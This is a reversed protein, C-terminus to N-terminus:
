LRNFCASENGGARRGVFAFGKGLELLFRTINRVLANELEREDYGKQMTLFEFNYPDNLIEQALGSQPAPLVSTFNTVAAGQRAYFDSALNDELMRRSWGEDSVCNMYFLAEKVTKCRRVIEVHHRWPVTSFCTPMPCKTGAQYLNRTEETGEALKEGAQYLINLSDKYFLYWRKILYLNELSFGKGGPFMAKMDHSLNKMVGKGYTHEIDRSVIDYGLSWYFELLESNVRVSAKAQAILFRTKLESLWKVYERNATMGTRFVFEPKSNEEAGM